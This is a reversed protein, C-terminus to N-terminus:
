EEADGAIMLAVGCATILGVIFVVVLCAIETIAKIM